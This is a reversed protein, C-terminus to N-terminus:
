QNVRIFRKLVEVNQNSCKLINIVDNLYREKIPQTLIIYMINNAHIDM